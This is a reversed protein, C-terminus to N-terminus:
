RLFAAPQCSAQWVPWLPANEATAAIPQQCTAHTPPACLCKCQPNCGLVAPWAGWWACGWKEAKEFFPRAKKPKAPWLDFFASVARVFKKQPLACAFAQARYHLITTNYLCVFYANQGIKALFPCKRAPAAPGLPWIPWGHKAVGCGAMHPCCPALPPRSFLAKVKAQLVRCIYLYM